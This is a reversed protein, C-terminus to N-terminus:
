TQVATPVTTICSSTRSRTSVATLLHMLEKTRSLGLTTRRRAEGPLRGGSRQADRTGHGGRTAQGRQARATHAARPMADVEGSGRRAAVAPASPTGPNPSPRPGATRGAHQQPRQRLSSRRRTNGERPGQGVRRASQCESHDAGRRGASARLRRLRRERGVICRQVPAAILCCIRGSRRQRRRGLCRSCGRGRRSSYVDPAHM